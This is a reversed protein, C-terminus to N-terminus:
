WKTFKSFEEKLALACQSIVSGKVWLGKGFLPGRGGATACHSLSWQVLIINENIFCPKFLATNTQAERTGLFNLLLPLLPAPM